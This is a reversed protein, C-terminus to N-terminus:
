QTDSESLTSGMIMQIVKLFRGKMGNGTFFSGFNEKLSFELIQMLEGYNGGFYQDLEEPSAFPKGDITLEDLLILILEYSQAKDIQQCLTLAMHTFTKPVEQFMDAPRMGDVAGGVLPAVIQLLKQSVSWGLHLGLIKIGIKKDVEKKLHSDYVKITTERRFKNTIQEFESM